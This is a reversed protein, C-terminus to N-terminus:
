RWFRFCDAALHLLLILTIMKHQRSKQKIKTYRWNYNMIMWGLTLTLTLILNYLAMFGCMVYLYLLRVKPAWIIRVQM